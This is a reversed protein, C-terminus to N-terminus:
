FMLSSAKMIFPLQWRGSYYSYFTLSIIPWHILNATSTYWLGGSRWFEQKLPWIKITYYYIDYRWSFMDLGTRNFFVGNDHSQCTMLFITSTLGNAWTIWLQSNGLSELFGAAFSIEVYDSNRPIIGPKTTLTSWQNPSPTYDINSDISWGAYAQDFCNLNPKVQFITELNNSCPVYRRLAVSPQKRIVPM